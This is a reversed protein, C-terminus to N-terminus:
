MQGHEAMSYVEEGVILHDLARVDILALAEKLRQTIMLDAKSPATSGSPHNHALIVAAANYKLAAAIIPRAYVSAGDITGSFMEDFDILRHQQDLFFVAFVENPEHGLHLKAFTKATETSTFKEKRSYMRRNIIRIAEQLVEKEQDTVGNDADNAYLAADETRVENM